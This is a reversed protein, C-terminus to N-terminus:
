VLDKSSMLFPAISNSCSLQCVSRGCHEDSLPTLVASMVHVLNTLRLPARLTPLRKHPAIRWHCGVRPLAPAGYDPSQTVMAVIAL